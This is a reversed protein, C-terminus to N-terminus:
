EAIRLSQMFADAQGPWEKCGEAATSSTGPGFGHKADPIMYLQAPVLDKVYDYVDQANKPDVMDDAMGHAIYFAPLNPNADSLFSSMSGYIPMAVDLDSNVADLEDPTYTSVGLDAPTLAGYCNFVTGMITGGGGSFGAAAIMDQGGWGEQGANYRVIRIARQLDMFIDMQSFPAVRRQLLFCNYGLDNFVPIAAYGEAPNSRASFGGGSILIINGKAQTPDDLLCKILVPGQGFGDMESADLAEQTLEAEEGDVVPGVNATFWEYGNTNDEASTGWLFWAGDAISVTQVLDSQAEVVKQADELSKTRKFQRSYVKSYADYSEETFLLEFAQIIRFNRNMLRIYEEEPADAPIEWLFDTIDQVVGDVVADGTAAEEAQINIGAFLTLCLSAALIWMILKKLKM